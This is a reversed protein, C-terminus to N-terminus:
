MSIMHFSLAPSQSPSVWKQQVWWPLEGHHVGPPQCEGANSEVPKWLAGGAKQATEKGEGAALANLEVSDRAQPAPHPDGNGPRSDEKRPQVPPQGNAEPVKQPRETEGVALVQEPRKREEGREPEQKEKESEPLPPAGPGKGAPDGEGALRPPPKKEEPGEQDQGEDVVVKDHPIPPEHRHAEGLPVAIGPLVSPCTSSILSFNRPIPVTRQSELTVHGHGAIQPSCSELITIDYSSCSLAATKAM